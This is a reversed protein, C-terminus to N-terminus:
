KSLPIPLGVPDDISLLLHRVRKEGYIVMCAGHLMNLRSVKTFDKANSSLIRHFARLATRPCCQFLGGSVIVGNCRDCNRQLEEWWPQKALGAFCNDLWEDLTTQSVDISISEEMQTSSLDLSISTTTTAEDFLTGELHDIIQPLQERIAEIVAARGAFRNNVLKDVAAAVKSHGLIYDRIQALLQDKLPPVQYKDKWLDKIAHNRHVVALAQCVLSGDHFSAWSTPNSSQRLTAVSGLCAVHCAGESLLKLDKIGLGQLFAICTLMVNETIEQSLGDPVVICVGQGQLEHPKTNTLITHRIRLGFGVFSSLRVYQDRDGPVKVEYFQEEKELPPVHGDTRPQAYTFAFGLEYDHLANEPIGINNGAEFTVRPTLATAAIAFPSQPDNYRFSRPHIRDLALLADMAQPSDIRIDIPPNFPHNSIRLDDLVATDSDVMCAKAVSDQLSASIVLYKGQFPLTTSPAPHFAAIDPFFPPRIRLGPWHSLRTPYYAEDFDKKCIPRSIDPYLEKTRKALHQFDGQQQRIAVYMGQLLTKPYMSLELKKLDVLGMVWAVFHPRLAEMFVGIEDELPLTLRVSTARRSVITRVHRQWWLPDLQPDQAFLRHRCRRELGRLWTSAKYWISKTSAKTRHFAFYTEVHERYVHSVIDPKSRAFVQDDWYHPSKGGEELIKVLEFSNKM